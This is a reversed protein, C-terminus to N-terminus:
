NQKILKLIGKLGMLLSEGEVYAFSVNLNGCYRNQLDGNVFIEPVRAKIGNYLKDFLMKIHKEDNKMEKMAIDAAAGMGAILATPM